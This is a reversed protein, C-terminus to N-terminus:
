PSASPRASPAPSAAPTGELSQLQALISGIQAIEGPQFRSLYTATVQQGVHGLASVLSAAM